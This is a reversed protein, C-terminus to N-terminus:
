KKSEAEKVIELAENRNKFVKVGLDNINFMFAHQTHNETGVFWDEEVTRIRLELLDYTEVTPMIRAYYVIDGRNINM